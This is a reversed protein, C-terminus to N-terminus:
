KAPKKAPKRAAEAAAQKDANKESRSKAAKPKKSDEAARTEKKAKTTKPESRQTRVLRDIASPKPQLAREKRKEREDKLAQREERLTAEAEAMGGERAAHLARGNAALKNAMSATRIPM